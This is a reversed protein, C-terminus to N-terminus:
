MKRSMIPTGHKILPGGLKGKDHSGIFSACVDKLPGWCEVKNFKSINSHFYVSVLAEQLEPYNNFLKKDGYIFASLVIPLEKCFIFYRIGACINLLFHGGSVHLHVHLSMEGKIKRWHAVVEDRQFKNYWGQLQSNNITHSIALTIKSTIDCHTLTYTRPLYAPHEKEDVGLFMVKLKSEEFTAPGFLRGVPMVAQNSKKKPLPRRHQHTFNSPKLKSSLFATTLTAMYVKSGKSYRNFHQFIHQERDRRTVM